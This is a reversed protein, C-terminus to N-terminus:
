VGLQLRRESVFSKDTHTFPCTFALRQALLQLPHSYDFLASDSHSEAQLVPYIRDGVIPVGLSAMHVRLQHKRGTIPRL